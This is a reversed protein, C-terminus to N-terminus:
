LRVLLSRDYVDNISYRLMSVMIYRSPPPVEEVRDETDLHTDMQIRYIVCLKGDKSVGSFQNPKRRRRRRGSLTTAEFGTMVTLNAFPVDYASRCISTLLQSDYSSITACEWLIQLPKIRMSDHLIRRRRAM